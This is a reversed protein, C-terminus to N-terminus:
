KLGIVATNLGYGEKEVRFSHIIDSNCVSCIGSDIINEKKLGAKELIIKNILVTDINWKKNYEKEEIIDKLNDLDEFENKFLKMVDRDVEFHCKRISPCICCIIENPNCNFEKIMKEVTKVSIRQLTGKWGSHTNAIVKKVPDFFLLLICDANTTSLILNNKDTVLGDTKSYQMLNFDPENEKIKQNVVKICDTHEQNTKVLDIYNCDISDCLMKYDEIVKEFEEVPLEEKKVTATRFNLNTGLSYAHTVIDKYELLKRFQLYEIKEDKVHIVNENSLNM